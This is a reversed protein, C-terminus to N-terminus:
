AVDPETETADFFKDVRDVLLATNIPVCSFEGKHMADFVEASPPRGIPLVSIETKTKGDPIVLLTWGLPTGSEWSKFLAAVREAAPKPSVGSRIM